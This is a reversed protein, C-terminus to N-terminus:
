PTAIMGHRWQQVDYSSTSTPEVQEKKPQQPPFKGELKRNKLVLEGM